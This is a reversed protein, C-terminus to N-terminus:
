KILTIAHRRRSGHPRDRVVSKLNPCLPAIDDRNGAKLQRGGLLEDGAADVALHMIGNCVRTQLSASHKAVNCNILGPAAFRSTSFRKIVNKTALTINESRTGFNKAQGLVGSRRALKDDCAKFRCLLRQKREDRLLTITIGEKDLFSRDLDWMSEAICWAMREVKHQKGVGPVGASPATSSRLADWVAKFMSHSPSVDDLHVEWAIGVLDRVNNVHNQSKSHRLFNWQSGTELTRIKFHAFQKQSSDHQAARACAICGLGWAGDIVKAALWSQPYDERGQVDWHAPILPTMEQYRASHNRWARKLQRVKAARQAQLIDSHYSGSGAPEQQKAAVVERKVVVAYSSTGSERKIRQEPKVFAVEKAVIAHDSGGFDM